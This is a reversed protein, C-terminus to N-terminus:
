AVADQFLTPPSALITEFAVTHMTMPSTCWSRPPDTQLGLACGHKEAAHTCAALAGDIEFTRQLLQACPGINSGPSTNRETGSVLSRQLHLSHKKQAM